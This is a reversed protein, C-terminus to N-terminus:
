ATTVSKRKLLSDVLPLVDKGWSATGFKNLVVKGDVAVLFRPTGRKVNTHDRIWRLDAPWHREDGTDIFFPVIVERYSVQQFAASARWDNRAGTEWYACYQCDHAGIYLVLINSAATVQIDQLKHLPPYATATQCAGALLCVLCLIPLMRLM